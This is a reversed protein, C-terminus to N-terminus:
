NTEIKPVQSSLRCAYLSCALVDMSNIDKFINVIVGFIYTGRAKAISPDKQIGAFKLMENFLYGQCM